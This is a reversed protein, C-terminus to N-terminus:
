SIIKGNKDDRADYEYLDENITFLITHTSKFVKEKDNFFSLTIKNFLLLM